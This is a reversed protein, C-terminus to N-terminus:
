EGSLRDVVAVSCRIVRNFEGYLSALQDQSIRGGSRHLDALRGLVSVDTDLATGLFDFGDRVKDPVEVGRLRAVARLPFLSSTFFRLLLAKEDSRSGHAQLFFQRMRMAVNRLQFECVFRLHESDIELDDLIPKGAVCVHARRIDDFKVCYVDAAERLEEDTVVMPVVRAKKRARAMSDGIRDLLEFDIEDLVVLLNIDSTAEDWEGRAASGYVNLGILDDGLESVLTDVLKGLRKQYRSGVSLAALADDHVTVM